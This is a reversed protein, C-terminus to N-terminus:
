GCQISPANAMRYFAVEEITPHFDTLALSKMLGRVRSPFLLRNM